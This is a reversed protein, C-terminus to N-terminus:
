YSVGVYNANLSISGSHQGNIAEIEFHYTGSQVDGYYHTDSWGCYLLGSGVLDDPWWPIHRYLDVLTNPSGSYPNTSCGQLTISTSVSDSNSDYWDRSEFNPHVVSLYSSWSGEAYSSTVLLLAVLMGVLLGAYRTPSRFVLM